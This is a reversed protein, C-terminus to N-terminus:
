LHRATIQYAGACSTSDRSAASSHYCISRLISADHGCRPNGKQLAQRFACPTCDILYSSGTCQASAKTVVSPWSIGPPQAVPCPAGPVYLRIVVFRRASTPRSPACSATPCGAPRSFASCSHPPHLHPRDAPLRGAMKRKPEATTKAALSSRQASYRPPRQSPSPLLKVFCVIALNFMHGLSFPVYAHSNELDDRSVSPPQLYRSRTDTTATEAIRRGGPLHRYLTAPTATHLASHHYSRARARPPLSILERQYAHSIGLHRASALCLHSDCSSRGGM